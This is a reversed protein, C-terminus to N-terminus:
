WPLSSAYLCLASIEREVDIPFGRRGVRRDNLLHDFLDTRAEPNAWADAIANVIRPYRETTVVPRTNKPLQVTWDMARGTLARDTALAPRRNKQWYGPVSDLVRAVGSPLEDLAARAADISVPQFDMM